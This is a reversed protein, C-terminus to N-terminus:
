ALMERAESMNKSQLSAKKEIMEAQSLKYKSQDGFEM